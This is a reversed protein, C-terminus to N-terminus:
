SYRKKGWGTRFIPIASAEVSADRLRVFFFQEKWFHYKSIFESIIAMNTRPTVQVMLSTSWRPEVLAELHDADLTIGLEYSLM